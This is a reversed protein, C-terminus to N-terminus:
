EEVGCPSGDLYTYGDFLESLTIGVNSINIKYKLFDTILSKIITSKDMIWIMPLESADFTRKVFRNCFDSIMESTDKYPRYKKEKVQEVLYAFPFNGVETVIRNEFNDPKILQITEIIDLLKESTYDATVFAKLSVLGYTTIVKDGKKLEDANLATYVRNKDFKM